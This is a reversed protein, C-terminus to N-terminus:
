WRLTLIVPKIFTCVLQPRWGTLVGLEVGAILTVLLTLTVAVFDGLAFRHAKAIVDWDILSIVAGIITAALVAKPLFYLAPTLFFAALTIPALEALIIKRWRKGLTIEVRTM